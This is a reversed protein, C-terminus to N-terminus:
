RDRHEARLARYAETFLEVTQTMMEDCITEAAAPDADRVARALAEHRDATTPSFRGYNQFDPVWLCAHVTGAMAALLHSASGLYLTRHFATDAQLMLDPDRTETATRIQGAAQVLAQVSAEHGALAMKRAALPEVRVRIDLSDHMHVFRESGAARWRIVQEDLAAWEAPDTVRTGARQRAAVMGKAALTRLAERVLSRSVGFRQAIGDLDLTGTVHGLAIGSGLTEVLKGHMSAVQDPHPPLPRQVRPLVEDERPVHAFLGSM